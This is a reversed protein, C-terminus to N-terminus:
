NVIELLYDAVIKSGKYSWHSDNMMYIDKEGNEIHPFLLDKTYIINDSGIINKLDENITKPPYPNDVIFNQYVDYKDAAVLILLKIGNRKALDFLLETNRKIVEYNEKKISTGNIIDEYYFYLKDGDEHTFMNDALDCKYVSRKYGLNILLWKKTNLLPSEKVNDDLTSTKIEYSVPYKLDTGIDKLNSFRNEISREVSELILYKTMTSDILNRKLLSYAVNFPAETKTKFNLINKGNLAIYNQYGFCSQQSFSDGITIIDCYVSDLAIDSYIEKVAINKPYEKILLSDYDYGFRIMSLRGLDGSFGKTDYAFYFTLFVFLAWFPLVMWSIKIIFKKM